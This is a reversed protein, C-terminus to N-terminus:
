CVAVAAILIPGDGCRCGDDHEVADARGVVHSGSADVADAPVDALEAGCKQVFERGCCRDAVAEGVGNFGHGRRVGSGTVERM